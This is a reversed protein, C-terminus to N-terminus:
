RNVGIKKVKCVGFGSNIKRILATELNTYTAVLVGLNHKPSVGITAVDDDLSKILGLCLKPTSTAVYVSKSVARIVCGARTGATAPM